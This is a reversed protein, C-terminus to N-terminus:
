DVPTPRKPLMDVGEIVIYTLFALVQNQSFAYKQHESHSNDFFVIDPIQIIPFSLQLMGKWKGLLASYFKLEFVHIEVNELKQVFIKNINIVM